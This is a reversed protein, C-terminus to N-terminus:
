APGQLAITHHALDHASEATLWINEARVNARLRSLGTCMHATGGSEELVLEDDNGARAISPPPGTSIHRVQDSLWPRKRRVVHVIPREDFNGEPYPAVGRNMKRM